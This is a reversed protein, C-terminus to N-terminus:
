WSRSGDLEPQRGIWDLLAGIDKVSDEGSSGTTSSSSRSATAPRAGCTPTSSPWAWSTSSTTARPGPLGARSSGRARRPHRDAGAAERSVTGAAPLLLGLDRARRLEALPDAGARVPGRHRARRDREDTWRTLKGTAPDLSYADGASRTDAFTFGLTRRRAALRARELVGSPCAPYPGAGGPGPTSCTSGALDGGRQHRLRDDARGPLARVRDVDWDIGTTLPTVPPDGPGYLGAAPVGIGSRHHSVRRARGPQVARRRVGRHRWWRGSEARVEEREGRGGALALEPQGIPVRQAILRGTM